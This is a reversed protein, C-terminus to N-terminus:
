WAETDYSPKGVNDYHAVRRLLTELTWMDTRLEGAIQRATESLALYRGARGGIAAPQPWLGLMRLGQQVEASWVAYRSPGAVHLFPTVTHVTLSTHLTQRGDPWLRAMRQEIPVSEDLADALLDRIKVMGPVSRISMHGVSPWRTAMPGRLLETVEKSGLERLAQPTIREACGYVALRDPLRPARM